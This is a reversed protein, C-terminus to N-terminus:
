KENSWISLSAVVIVVLIFTLLLQISVAIRVHRHNPMIDGYSSTTQTLLSFYLFDFREWVEPVDSDVTQIKNEYFNISNKIDAIRENVYDLDHLFISPQQNEGTPKEPELITVYPLTNRQPANAKYKKLDKQYKKLSALEKKLEILKRETLDKYTQSKSKLIDKNFAFTAPNNSYIAFYVCGFIYWM